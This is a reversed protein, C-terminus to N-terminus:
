TLRQDSDEKKIVKYMEIKKCYLPFNFDASNESYVLCPINRGQPVWIPAKM